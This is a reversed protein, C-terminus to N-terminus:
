IRRGEALLVLRRLSERNRPGIALQRLPGPVLKGPGHSADETMTILSGEGDPEVTLEVRAEGAPWGRAQLAMRRPRQYLVCSTTDDILTPWPGVSHHLEAGVGPWTSDVARMRSAGVVWGAYLWGDALVDFVEDPTATTRRRVNIM